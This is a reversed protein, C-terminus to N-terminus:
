EDDDDEDVYIFELLDRRQMEDLVKSAYRALGMSASISGGEPTVVAHTSPSGDAELFEGVFLFNTLLSSDNEACWSASADQLFDSMSKGSDAMLFYELGVSFVIFLFVYELIDRPAVM